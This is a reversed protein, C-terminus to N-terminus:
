AAFRRAQRRKLELGLGPRSLDPWLAGDRLEPFGDFFMHEIRVHDHFYEINWLPEISCCPHLHLAPATHASMPRHLAACLGAVQQFVSIGACRSADAQQVDVAEAALMRHFYGLDYGYEGAALNMGAPLRQRLGALGPLDDSSVPEEFWTVNSEAFAAAMRLAQARSYAGNADVFLATSPGIAARAVRVREPDRGPERGVKMKVARLGQAAWGGLQDALETDTYSTFGGSGYVEVCPRVMGLLKVLPLGLLKAKLDWLAVDVAAIAMSAIGPRGLNRIARRMCAWAGSIDM